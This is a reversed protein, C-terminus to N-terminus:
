QTRKLAQKMSIRTWKWQVSIFNEISSKKLLHSIRLPLSWKKTCHNCKTKDRTSSFFFFFIEKATCFNWVACLNVFWIHVTMKAETVKVARSVMNELDQFIISFEFLGLLYWREMLKKAWFFVKNGMESFNLVLVKWYDTFIMKGDVKQSLFATNGVELFSLVLVKWYDTFIM